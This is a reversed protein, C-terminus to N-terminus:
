IARGSPNSRHPEHPGRVRGGPLKAAQRAGTRRARRGAQHESSPSGVTGSWIMRPRPEQEFGKAM